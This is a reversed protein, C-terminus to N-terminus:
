VLPEVRRCIEWELIAAKRIPGWHYGGLAGTSPIIRHCPILFVVPNDGVATGVARSAKPNNICGAIDGYTTLAGIPIRLLAEWVKLQFDTGKLHLKIVELQKWDATFLVLAQQHFRTIRHEYTARPFLHRLENLARERDSSFAMYCVGKGTSAVLMEGFPTDSFCLDIALNEGGTKYEEARMGEIQIFLTHMRGSRSLETELTANFLTGRGEKLLQKAAKTVREVSFEEQKQIM